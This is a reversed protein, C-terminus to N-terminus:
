LIHVAIDRLIILKEFMKTFHYVKLYITIKRLYFLSLFVSDAKMVLDICIDVYKDMFM